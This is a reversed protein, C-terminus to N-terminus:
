RVRAQGGKRSRRKRSPRTAPQRMFWDLVEARSYRVTKWGLSRCPVGLRQVQRPHVKLLAAVDATTLTFDSDPAPLAPTQGKLAVVQQRGSM